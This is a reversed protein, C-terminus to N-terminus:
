KFGVMVTKVTGDDLSVRIEWTGKSLSETSLNYIYQSDTSEYRFLSGTDAGSTSAADVPEGVPEEGSYQQLALTAVATSVYIGNADTLQFKVPVTSGLKFVRGSRVPPLFFDPDPSVYVIRYAVTQSSSNGANDAASVTFDHVGVASTVVASGSAATGSSSAIGSLEDEASWDATVSQNLTYESDLPSAITIEPVTKDINLTVSAASNNGANDVATSTILQGQGESSVTQTDPCLAIGSIIDSCICNIEVDTNNWGVTNAAPLANASIDPPTKDIKVTESKVTEINGENDTSKYYLVSMGENSVSFPEAYEGWLTNDFSYETKLVGSGGENDAAMLTVEIDSLYWGNNGASGSLSISTTPPDTDAGLIRFVEVKASNQSAVYIRNDGSVALGLPTRMPNDLDYVTGLYTGIHDYVQIVNQYVDSVYVRRASDVQVGMPRFIKGEGIGFVGFSRIFSGDMGFVQIRATPSWGYMWRHVKKFDSVLIESNVEDIAISSPFNFQGNGNGATGFSFAPSGDPNYVKIKNGKGDAVYIKGDSGTAIGNPHRFEGYGSGLEGLSNLDADYVSVSRSGRIGAYVRNNGYVAVSIPRDLGTIMKKLSRDSRDYVLLRGNILDTVYLNGYADSAVATPADLGATVPLLREYEPMEEAASMSLFICFSLMSLLSCLALVHRINIRVMNNNGKIANKEAADGEFHIM